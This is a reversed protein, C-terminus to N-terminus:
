PAGGERRNVELLFRSRLFDRTQTDVSRMWKQASDESLESDATIEGEAQAEADEDFRYEDEGPDTDESRGAEERLAEVYERLYLALELNEQAEQWQPRALLAQRFAAAARRYDRGKLLANGRNYFGQASDERGFARAAERYRGARYAASGKWAPNEFLAAARSFDKRSLALMGRQDPTLWLAALSGVRAYQWALAALGALTLLLALRRIVPSHV